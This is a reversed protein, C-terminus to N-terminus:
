PEIPNVTNVMSRTLPRLSTRCGPMASSTCVSTFSGTRSVQALVTITVSVPYSSSVAGSSARSVTAQAHLGLDDHEGRSARDPVAGALVAERHHVEVRLPQRRAETAGAN